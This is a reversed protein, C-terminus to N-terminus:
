IDKILLGMAAIMEDRKRLLGRGSGRAFAQMVLRHQTTQGQPTLLFPIIKV